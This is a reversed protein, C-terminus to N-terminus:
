PAPSPIAAASSLDYTRKGGQQACVSCVLGMGAAARAARLPLLHQAEAEAGVRAGRVARAHGDAIEQEVLGDAAGDEQGLARGGDWVASGEAHEAGREAERVAKRARAERSGTEM